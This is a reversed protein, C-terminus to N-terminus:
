YERSVIFDVLDLAADRYASAPLECINQKALTAQTRVLQMTYERSNTNAIAAQVAAFTESPRSSVTVNSIAAIGMAKETATGHQLMHIIPLTPKGEALDNGVAKGLQDSQAGYDLLDDILQFAMGLHLGYQAMTARLNPQCGSLVAAIEAAAAFLKATKHNIINLYDQETADPNNQSLLQLVEGEAIANTADAMIQLIATSDVKVMLQFARSYLFDGVLVAANNGWINNSTKRGRRLEASDIVDDHLLTANHIFEIAVALDLHQKGQYGGAHACLILLLPRLRKGGAQILYNGVENILPVQSSLNKHVLHNFETLDSSVLDMIKTLQM